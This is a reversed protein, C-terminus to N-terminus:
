YSRNLLYRGFIAEWPHWFHGRDRLYRCFHRAGRKVYDLIVRRHVFHSTDRLLPALIGYIVVFTSVMYSFVRLYRCIHRDVRSATIFYRLYRCIHLIDRKVYGLDRLYRCIHLADRKVYALTVYIDVFIVLTM